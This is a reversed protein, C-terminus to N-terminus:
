YRDWETSSQAAAAIHHQVSITTGMKKERLSVMIVLEGLKIEVLKSRLTKVSIIITRFFVMFRFWMCIVTISAIYMHIRARLVTHSSVDICHTVITITCLIYIIWDFLNNLSYYMYYSKLRRRAKERFRQAFLAIRSGRRPPTTLSIYPTDSMGGPGAKKKVNVLLGNSPDSSNFIVDIPIQQTPQPEVLKGKIITPISSPLPYHQSHHSRTNPVTPNASAPSTAENVIVHEIEGSESNLKAVSDIKKVNPSPPQGSTNSIYKNKSILDLRLNTRESEWILYDEYRQRAYTLEYMEQVIQWVLFGISIGWLICRWIDHPFRYVYRIPFPTILASCTWSILFLVELALGIYFHKAAFNDWKWKILGKILPHTILDLREHYYIAELPTIPRFQTGDPRFKQTISPRPAYAPV